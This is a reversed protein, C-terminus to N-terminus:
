LYFPELSNLALLTLSTLGIAAIVLAWKIGSSHYSTTWRFVAIQTDLMLIGVGLIWFPRSSTAPDYIYLCLNGIVVLSTAFLWTRPRVLVQHLHLHPTHQNSRYRIRIGLLGACTIWWLIAIRNQWQERFAAHVTESYGQTWAPYSTVLRRADTIQKHNLLWEVSAVVAQQRTEEQNEPHQAIKKLVALGHQEHHLELYAKGILLLFEGQVPGPPYADVRQEWTTLSPLTRLQSPNDRVQTLQQLPKYNGENHTRLYNWRIRASQGQPTNPHENWCLSYWREADGFNLQSEAQRAHQYASTPESALVVSASLFVWLGLLVAWLLERTKM